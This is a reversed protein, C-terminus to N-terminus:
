KRSYVCRKWCTLSRVVFLTVLYGKGGIRLGTTGRVNFHLAGNRPYPVGAQDMVVLENATVLTETVHGGILFCM